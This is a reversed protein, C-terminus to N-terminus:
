YRVSVSAAIEAIGEDESWDNIIFIRDDIDIRENAPKRPPLDCCRAYFHAMSDSIGFEAASIGQKVQRKTLEFEDCVILIKEGFVYHYEGYAEFFLDNDRKMQEGFVVRYPLRRGVM